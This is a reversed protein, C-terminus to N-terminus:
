KLRIPKTVIKRRREFRALANPSWRSVHKFDHIGVFDHAAACLESCFISTLDPRRLKAEIWSWGKGGSRFAGVYDYDTGLFNALYGELKEVQHSFMKANLPYHWVKGRYNGVREAIDTVQVGSVMANASLCNVSNLTTSEFLALRGCFKSVIAIHSLGVFPIGFTALNIGIGSLSTASFGILDGAQMAVGFFLKTPGRERSVCGSFHGEISLHPRIFVILM